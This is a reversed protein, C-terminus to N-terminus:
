AKPPVTLGRIASVIESSGAAVAKTVDDKARLPPRNSIHDAFAGVNAFSRPKGDCLVDIVHRGLARYSEFQSETFFQNSTSEHPFTESSQAYNYVDRPLYDEDYVSPKLYILVGDQKTNDIASYRITATAVYSGSILPQGPQPRPYMDRSKIEIPVGLDTRIKRIANGLDDFNFTPDCGGDTLVIFRCRRLVMEYLGLNEFHGGDSLSVWPCQDNTRGSLEWFLTELNGRPNSKTFTGDGPLGPNGLWAGLRVNLLTM